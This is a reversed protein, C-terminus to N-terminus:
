YVETLTVLGPASSSAIYIEGRVLPGFDKYKMSGGPLTSVSAFGPNTAGRDSDSVQCSGVNDGGFLIQMRRPNGGMVRLFAGGALTTVTYTTTTYIRVMKM